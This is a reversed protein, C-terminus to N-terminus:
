QINIRNLFCSWPHSLIFGSLSSSLSFTYTYCFAETMLQPLHCLSTATMAVQPQSPHIFSPPLALCSPCQGQIPRTRPMLSESVPVEVWPCIEMWQFPPCSFTSCGTRGLSVQPSIPWWSLSEGESTVSPSTLHTDPHCFHPMLWLINILIWLLLGCYWLAPLM